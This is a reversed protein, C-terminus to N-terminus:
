EGVNYSASLPPIHESVAGRVVHSVRMHHDDVVNALHYTPFKDTKIIIPDEFAPYMEANNQGTPRTQKGYVLDTYQPYIPPVKFRIVHAEGKSSRDDSEEKSINACKRDYQASVGLQTRKETYARLREPTCFCRYANGSDLLIEAREQYLAL